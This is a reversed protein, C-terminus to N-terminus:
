GAGIALRRSLVINPPKTRYRPPPNIWEARLVLKGDVPGEIFIQRNSDAGSAVMKGMVMEWRAEVFEGRDSLFLFKHDPKIEFTLIDKEKGPDVGYWVGFTDHPIGRTGNANNVALMGISLLLIGGFGGVLFLGHQTDKDM